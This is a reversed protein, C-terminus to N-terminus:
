KTLSPNTLGRGRSSESFELLRLLAALSSPGVGERLPDGLM